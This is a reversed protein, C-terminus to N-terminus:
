EEYIRVTRFDVKNVKTRGKGHTYEMLEPLLKQGNIIVLEDTRFTLLDYENMNLEYTLRHFSHRLVQDYEKWFTKYLGSEGGFTLDLNGMVKGDADYRHMTGVEVFESDGRGSQIKTVSYFASMIRCSGPNETKESITTNGDEDTIMTKITTNMHRREGIYPFSLFPGITTAYGEEVESNLIFGRILPTYQINSTHEEYEVDTGEHYHDFMARVVFRWERRYEELEEYWYTYFEYIACFSTIFYYGDAYNDQDKPNPLHDLYGKIEGYEREFKEYTDISIDAFEIDRKYCLKVQKPTSYEIDPEKTVKSSYDKKPLSNLIDKWFLVHVSKHDESVFFECGFRHRVTDLYEQISCTPVLQSYDLTSRVIADATNNMLVMRSLDPDTDFISEKLDYGFYNFIRRIVYNERLFPTIGYGKPVEFEEGSTKVTFPNRGRFIKYKNGFLDTDYFADNDHTRTFSVRENLINYVTYEITKEPRGSTRTHIYNEVGVPFLHFDDEIQDFAVLEMYKIMRDFKNSITQGPIIFSDAERKIQFATSMTIEQMKTYMRAEDLLLVSDIGGDGMSSMIELVAQKVMVGSEIIVPIKKRLKGCRDIRNPFGMNKLNNPSMPVNVPLSMSGQDTLMPNTIQINLQTDPRLDLYEDRNIKINM